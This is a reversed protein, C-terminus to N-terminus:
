RNISNRSIGRKQLLDVLHSGGLQLLVFCLIALLAWEMAIWGFLEPAKMMTSMLSEQYYFFWQHGDPFLLEHLAYFVKVPGIVVVLIAVTLMFFLTGVLQVKLSPVPKHSKVYYILLGFWIILAIVAAYTAYGILNAVDQLHVVEPQRLLTQEPHDPVKYSLEALGAGGAHISRNIGEFLEIRQDRTTLHFGQRYLNSPGYEDIAAGIGAHDHWIGYSFNMQALVLWSMALALLLGSLALPVACLLVQTKTARPSPPPSKSPSSHSSKRRKM